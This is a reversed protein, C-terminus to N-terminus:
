FLPRLLCRPHGQRHRNPLYRRRTSQPLSGWLSSVTQSASSALLSTPFPRPSPLLTQTRPLPSAHLLSADNPVQSPPLGRKLLLPRRVRLLNPSLLSGLKAKAKAARAQALPLKRTPPPPTFTLTSTAQASPTLTTGERGSSGPKTHTHTSGPKSRRTVSRRALDQITSLSSTNLTM